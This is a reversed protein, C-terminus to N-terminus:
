GLREMKERIALYDEASLRYGKETLRNLLELGERLALVKKGVGLILIYTIPMPELELIRAAESALQDDMLVRKIGLQRALSVVEMEGEGLDKDKVLGRKIKKGTEDLDKLILFGGELLNELVLVDKKGAEKGRAVSEQYVAPPIYIKEILTKLIKVFRPDKASHILASADAVVRM